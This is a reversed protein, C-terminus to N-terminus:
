VSSRSKTLARLSTTAFRPAIARKAVVKKCAKRLGRAKRAFNLCTKRGADDPPDHRATLDRSFSAARPRPFADAGKWTGRRANRTARAHPLRAWFDGEPAVFTRTLGAVQM